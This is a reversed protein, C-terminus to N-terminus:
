QVILKAKMNPHFTCIYDFAGTKKAVFKWSGGSRISGSDFSKDAATVTHPVIDGNKWEVTDGVEVTLIAPQYEFDKITVTHLTNTETATAATGTSQPVAKQGETWSVSVFLLWTLLFVTSVISWEPSPHGPTKGRLKTFRM